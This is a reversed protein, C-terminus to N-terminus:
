PTSQVYCRCRVFFNNWAWLGNISPVSYQDTVFWFLKAPFNHTIVVSWPFSVFRYRLQELSEDCVHFWRPSSLFCPWNKGWDEGSHTNKLCQAPPFCEIYCAILWSPGLHLLDAPTLASWIIAGSLLQKTIWVINGLVLLFEMRTAWVVQM